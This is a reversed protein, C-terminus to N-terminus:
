STNMLDVVIVQWAEKSNYDQWIPRKELRYVQNSSGAGIYDLLNDFEVNECTGATECNNPWLTADPKWSSRSDLLSGIGDYLEEEM